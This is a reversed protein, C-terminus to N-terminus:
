GDRGGECQSRFAAVWPTGDVKLLRRGARLDAAAALAVRMAQAWDACPAWWPGSGPVWVLWTSRARDTPGIGRVPARKVFCRTQDQPMPGAVEQRTRDFTFLARTM